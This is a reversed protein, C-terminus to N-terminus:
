SISLLYQPSVHCFLRETSCHICRHPLPSGHLRRLQRQQRPASMHCLQSFRQHFFAENIQARVVAASFGHQHALQQRLLISGIGIKVTRTCIKVGSQRSNRRSAPQDHHFIYLRQRFRRISVRQHPAQPLKRRLCAHQQGPTGSQRRPQLGVISRPPQRPQPLIKHSDRLFLSCSINALPSQLHRLPQHVEDALLIIAPGHRQRQPQIIEGGAIQRRFLQQLLHPPVYVIAKILRQKVRIIRFHLGKQQM